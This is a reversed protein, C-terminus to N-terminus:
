SKKTKKYRMGGLIGKVDGKKADGLPLLVQRYMLVASEKNPIEVNQILPKKTQLVKNYADMPTELFRVILNKIHVGSPDKKFESNLNKGLYATKTINMSITPIIEILFCDKVYQKDIEDINIDGFEPFARGDKKSKWYDQLYDTLRRNDQKDTAQQKKM